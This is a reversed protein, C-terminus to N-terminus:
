FMLSEVVSFTIFFFPTWSGLGPDCCVCRRHLVDITTHMLRSCAPQVEALALVVDSSSSTILVATLHPTAHATLGSRDDREDGETERQINKCTDRDDREGGEM